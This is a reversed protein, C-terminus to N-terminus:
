YRCIRNSNSCPIEKISYVLSKKYSIGVGGKGVYHPYSTLVADADTDVKVFSSYYKHVSNLYNKCTNTDKLKHESVIAVDCKSDDLLKSLCM